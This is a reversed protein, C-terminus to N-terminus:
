GEGQDFHQYTQRVGGRSVAEIRNGDSHYIGAYLAEGSPNKGASEGNGGGSVFSLYDEIKGSNEFRKWYEMNMQMDGSGM